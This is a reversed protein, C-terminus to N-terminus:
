RKASYKLPGPAIIFNNFSGTRKGITDPIGPGPFESVSVAFPLQDIGIATFIDTIKMGAM